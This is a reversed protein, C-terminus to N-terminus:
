LLRLMRRHPELLEFPQRGQGPEGHQTYQDGAEARALDTQGEARRDRLEWPMWPHRGGWGWCHHQGQQSMHTQDGEDSLRLVALLPIPASRGMQSETVCATQVM